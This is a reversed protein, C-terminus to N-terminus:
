ISRNRFKMFIMEVALHSIKWRRISEFFSFSDNKLRSVLIWILFLDLSHYMQISKEDKTFIRQTTHQIIYDIFISTLLPKKNIISEWLKVFVIRVWQITQSQSLNTFFQSVRKKQSWFEKSEIISRFWFSQM